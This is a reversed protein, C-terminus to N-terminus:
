AARRKKRAQPAVSARTRAACPPPSSEEIVAANDEQVVEDYLAMVERYEHAYADGAPPVYEGNVIHGMKGEVDTMGFYGVCGSAYSERWMAVRWAPMRSRDEYNVMMGGMNPYVVDDTSSGSVVSMYSVMQNARLKMDLVSDPLWMPRDVCVSKIKCVLGKFYEADTVIYRSLNKKVDAPTKMKLVTWPTRLMVQTFLQKVQDSSGSNVFANDRALNVELFTKIDGGTINTINRIMTEAITVSVVVFTKGNVTVPIWGFM